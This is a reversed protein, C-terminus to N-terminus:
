SVMHNVKTHPFDMPVKPDVRQTTFAQTIGKSRAMPCGSLTARSNSYSIESMAQWINILSCSKLQQCRTEANSAQQTVEKNPSHLFLVPRGDLM